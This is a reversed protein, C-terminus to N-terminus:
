VGPVRSGPSKELLAAQAITVGRGHDRDQDNAFSALPGRSEVIIPAFRHSAIIRFPVFNTFLLYAVIAREPLGKYWILIALKM